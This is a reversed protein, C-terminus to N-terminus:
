GREAAAEKKVKDVLHAPLVDYHDHVATFSGRGGTMSRLDIAYRLIEATPIVAEIEAEGDAMASTGQM